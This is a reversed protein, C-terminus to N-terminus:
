REGGLRTFRRLTDAELRSMVTRAKKESEGLVKLENEVTEQLYALDEGPVARATSVYVQGGQKVVIGDDVALYREEGAPTLYSFIGPVLAAVFDIHRPLMTFYGNQAEATVKEVEEELLVGAPLLIKLHM